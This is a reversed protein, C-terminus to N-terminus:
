ATTDVYDGITWTVVANYVGERVPSGPLRHLTVSDYVPNPNTEPDAVPLEGFTLEFTGFGLKIDSEDGAWNVMLAQEGAGVKTSAATPVANTPINNVYEAYSTTLRANKYEIEAGTLVATGNAFQDTIQATVAFNNVPVDTRVDQFRVFHPMSIPEGSETEVTNYVTADYATETELAEHVQFDLDTVSIIRRKSLDENQTPESIEPGSTDDPPRNTPNTTQSGATFEVKGKGPMSTEANTQASLVAGVAVTALLAAGAIKHSRKM